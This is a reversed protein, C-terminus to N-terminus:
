EDNFSWTGVFNGNEDRITGSFPPHNKNSAAPHNDISSGVERIKRAVDSPTQMADNGLEIQLVFKM